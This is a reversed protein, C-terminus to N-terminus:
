LSICVKQDVESRDEEIKVASQEIGQLVQCIRHIGDEPAETKGGMGQIRISIKDAVAHCGEDVPRQRFGMLIILGKGRGTQGGQFLLIALTPPLLGARVWPYRFEEVLKSRSLDLHGNEGVFWIFEGPYHDVSEQGLPM